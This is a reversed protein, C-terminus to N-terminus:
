NDPAGAHIWARLAAVVEDDLPDVEADKPPMVEGFAVPAQLKTLLLSNEPEGPVVYRAEPDGHPASELLRRRAESADDEPIFDGIYASHHCGGCSAEVAPYLSAFSPTENEDVEIVPEATDLPDLPELAADEGEVTACAVFLLFLPMPVEAGVM